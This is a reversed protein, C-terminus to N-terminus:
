NRTENRVSERPLIEITYKKVCQKCLVKIDGVRGYDIDADYVIKPANCLDCRRYDIGAM